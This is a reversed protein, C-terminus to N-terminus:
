DRVEPIKKVIKVCCGPHKVQKSLSNSLAQFVVDFKTFDKIETIFNKLRM